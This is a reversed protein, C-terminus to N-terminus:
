ISGDMKIMESIMAITNSKIGNESAIASWDRVAMVVEEIIREIRVTSIGMTKGASLLDERVIEGVAISRRDEWANAIINLNM